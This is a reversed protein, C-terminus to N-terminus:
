SVRVSLVMPISPHTRATAPSTGMLSRPDNLVAAVEHADKATKVNPLVIEVKGITTHHTGGPHAGPNGHATKLPNAARGGADEAHMVHLQKRIDEPVSNWGHQAGFKEWFSKTGYTNASGGKRITLEESGAPKMTLLLLAAIAAMAVAIPGALGAIGLGLARLAAPVGAVASGGMVTAFVNMATSVLGLRMAVGIIKGGFGALFIGDMLMLGRAALGVGPAAAALLGLARAGTLLLSATGVAFRIGALATLGAFVGGIAKETDRHGHLWAQANHLMEGVNHFFSTTEALWPWALETMLSAFNTRALQFQGALTNMYRSQQADMGLDKRSMSKIIAEIQSTFKPDEALMAMRGGQKGFVSIFTKTVDDGRKGKAYEGLKNLFGLFDFTKKQADYFLSHGSNDILGMQKLMDGKAGQAFQTQQLPGLAELALNAMGTGGKGRGYGFRDLLAMTAVSQEDSVGISKFTPLYYGMQTVAASLNHPMMESLRTMMDFIHTLGAPDYQRFMHALMIAQQAGETFPVGRSLYQVDAFKAAPMAIQELRKPDNVGSRAMVAMIHASDVVSQATAASINFAVERLRDMQGNSAGTANKIGVLATQLRAADALAYAMVGVGAAAVVGAGTTGLKMQALRVEEIKAKYRSMALANKDIQGTQRALQMNAANTSSALRTMTAAGNSSFRLFVGVVWGGPGLM